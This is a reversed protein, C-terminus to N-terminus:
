SLPLSDIFFFLSFSFSFSPFISRFYVRNFFSCSFYTCRLVVVGVVVVFLLLLSLLSSLLLFSLPSVSYNLFFLTSIFAFAQLSGTIGVLQENDEELIVFSPQSLLFSDLIPSFSFSYSFLFLFLLFFLNLFSCSLSIFQSFVLILFFDPVALFFSFSLLLFAPVFSFTKLISVFLKLSAVISNKEPPFVSLTIWLSISAQKINGPCSYPWERGM